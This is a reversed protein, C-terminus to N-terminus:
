VQGGALAVDGAELRQNCLARERAQKCIQKIAQQSTKRHAPYRAKMGSHKGAQKSVLRDLKKTEQKSEQNSIQKITPNCRMSARNAQMSNLKSTLEKRANSHVCVCLICAFVYPDAYVCVCVCVTALRERKWDHTTRHSDMRGEVTITHFMHVSGPARGEHVGDNAVAALRLVRLGVDHFSRRRNSQSVGCCASGFPAITDWNYLCLWGQSQEM